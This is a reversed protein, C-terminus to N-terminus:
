AGNSATQADTRGLEFLSFSRGQGDTATTLPTLERPGAQRRLADTNPSAVLVYCADAPLESWAHFYRVSPELYYWFPQYSPEEVWVLANAPLVRRFSAAMERPGRTRDRNIRPVVAVAFAFTILVMVIASVLASSVLATSVRARRNPSSVPHPAANEVSAWLGLLVLVGGVFAFRLAGGDRPALFTACGLAIAACGLCVLNTQRWAWAVCWALRDEIGGVLAQELLLPPVVLLPYLYRPSGNPLLSMVIFLAAMGSRAGRFLCEDRPSVDPRPRRKAWLLPLLVTWPLFNKASLPVSALYNGLHFHEDPRASARSGIQDLWTGWVAMPHSPSIALACPVAWVLFAGGVTALALGHGPHLLARAEKALVLVPVLIGYYFLLETPGKVLMGLALFPAPALWLHWLNSQRHWASLWWVLAVGTLAVYLAELEALRGTEMMALGTLFFIAALKGGATRALWGRGAVAVIALAFAATALASPLRAAVETRNGTVAFSLAILWSLLPPKRLYPDSGVRPVLWDGSSLMHLAPLARRPEEHELPLRGLAPLYIGAWVLLVLLGDSATRRWTPPQPRGVQADAIM